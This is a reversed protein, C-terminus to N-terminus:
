LSVGERQLRRYFSFGRSVANEFQPEGFVKLSIIPSFDLEWMLEYAADELRKEVKATKRDVVVAVDLDSYKQAVGTARSGFMIIRRVRKRVDAPIKDRFRKVLITDKSSM